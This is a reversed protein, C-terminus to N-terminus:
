ALDQMAVVELVPAGSDSLTWIAYGGEKMLRAPGRWEGNPTAAAAIPVLIYNANATADAQSFYVRITQGTTGLNRLVLYLTPMRLEYKALSGTTIRRVVPAGGLM